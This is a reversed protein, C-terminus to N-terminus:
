DQGPPQGAPDGSKKEKGHFGPVNARGHGHGSAGPAGKGEGDSSEVRIKELNDEYIEIKAKQKLESIFDKQAQTRERRYLRNQIQRQVQEFSKHIARRNGTQKIIYFRGDGADIPGAVDGTKELEFAAEVVPKPIEEADKSFYRLDGGRLKSREDVSHQSVLERFGKNTKGAAGHAKKAIRKATSEDDLIIASVRVEAPKNYENEHEEYFARMDEESIDEPKVRDKFEDKMLKQIMVQKMTRIVDPHEDFGRTKAERALVEFRVLNQLFEKKKERSKYRARIYPSQQNIRDQFQRVTIVEGDIKALPTDLDEDSQTPLGPVQGESGEGGDDSSRQCGTLAAAGALVILLLRRM